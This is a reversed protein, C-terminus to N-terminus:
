RREIGRPKRGVHRIDPQLFSFRFNTQTRTCCVLYGSIKGTTLNFTAGTIVTLEVPERGRWNHLSIIM